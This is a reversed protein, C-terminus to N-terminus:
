GGGIEIDAYYKVITAHFYLSSLFEDIFLCDYTNGLKVAYRPQLNLFNLILIYIYINKQM